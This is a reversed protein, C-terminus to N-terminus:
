LGFKHILPAGSCNALEAGIAFRSDADGSGDGFKHLPVLGISWQCRPRGRQQWIAAARTAAVSKSSFPAILAGFSSSHSYGTGGIVGLILDVNRGEVVTQASVCGEKAPKGSGM